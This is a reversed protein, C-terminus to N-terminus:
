GERASAIASDLLTAATPLSQRLENVRSNLRLITEQAGANVLRQYWGVFARSTATEESADRTPPIPQSEVASCLILAALAQPPRACNCAREWLPHADKTQQSLLLAEARFAIIAKEEPMAKIAEGTWDCAFELFEPNSLAIEAGLKWAAVHQSNEAVISNLAHLADVPRKQQVLLRAYDLKVNELNGTESIASEFEKEAGKLDGANMLSLALCHRPAVTLIDTNIPSLAPQNRKAICQRMQGAAESYNKLEFHALGLAFHLSATLGGNQALPSNLTRIVENHQRDRYLHVTYQTLLVERLEPVIEAPKQGSMLEFAEAYRALGEHLEGSRVLELGLNMVLNADNPREEVALKLLRLNREVKNRDKEIEKTYGHHLLQATGLETKMGWAKCYPLLSSFVQEHIRGYFHVGPANRFLRPVFSRGDNQGVNVLPLRYALADANSFDKKLNAHQDAPLEEDADLMLIWDGTAHELAANRAASFDDCWNFQHVEAGSAKAIEVTRDTSGTDLVVIQNALGKVSKLCQAIFKEENKTIICVSLRNCVASQPNRIADPLVLWEPKANGKLPKQLFQKPTKWGPALDRARQACIRASNADGAALAIEALLLFAEPHFPRKAIAATAETWAQEWAKRGFHERAKSLEGVKAVEPITVPVSVPAPKKPSLPKPAAVKPIFPKKGNLICDRYRDQATKIERAGVARNAHEVSTPSKLYLGLTEKVHLFKKTQALRLWFEYDGASVMEADFYGYEDHVERRWMPQPGCFCGKLLLAKADFDMWRYCGVPDATDYTENENLTVLCDGYVLSIEPNQDLTQALIELADSRHRDDTNANTLYRGRAAQVGRNWAGYVTEREETRIYVINSYRKQFEEVIARENQPSNSDVVIIELQDAITQAELNELCGRLFRESKFTSVIASVLPRNSRSGRQAAAKPKQLEAIAAPVTATNWTRIAAEEEVADLNAPLAAHLPQLIKQEVNEALSDDGLHVAVKLLRLGIRLRYAISYERPATVHAQSYCLWAQRWDKRIEAELGLLLALVSDMESIQSLQGAFGAAVRNFVLAARAEALGTSQSDYRDFGAYIRTLRRLNVALKQHLEDGRDSSLILRGITDIPDTGTKPLTEAISTFRSIAEAFVKGTATWSFRNVNTRGLEILRSRVEPNQVDILAKQMGAVDSDGVYIAADGTVEPISSNRCTIVPCGCKHAELIPMGFGEYRSPYALAVAGAYAASLEADSLRLMHCRVGRVYPKLSSELEAPGGACVIEFEHRNELLAFARFFLIANKYIGRNGVLLFYPKQIRHKEKFARVSESGAPQLEDGVANHALVVPRDAHQPYLSRFDNLTSQSVALYGCSKDIAKAKARWEPLSLDQGTVEPIMDHLVIVNPTNEAFTHYTSVLVAANEEDCHRQLRLSDDEFQRFNYSAIDRRRIGPIDPASRARDLLVIRSALPSLALQELMRHWVRSIGHPRGRQLEFIVGDILITKETSLEEKRVATVAPKPLSDVWQVAQELRRHLAHEQRVYEWGAQALKEARAPDSTLERVAALLEDRNSYYLLHKGHEFQRDIEETGTRNTVVACGCAMAEYIRTPHNSFVSPFNVAVQYRNFDNALDEPTVPREQYPVLDVAKNDILHQLLARRDSYSSSQGAFPQHKGRFFARQLRENFPQNRVFVSDDVGFPQFLAPKGIAEMLPRDSLDTYIIADVCAAARRFALEMVKSGSLKEHNLISEQAYLIKRAPCQQWREQWRRSGHLMQSHWDFGALLIIDSQPNALYAFLGDDSLVDQDGWNARPRFTRHHIGLQRAANEWGGGVAWAHSGTAQLVIDVRAKSTSGTIIAPAAVTKTEPLKPAPIPAVPTAPATQNFLAPASQQPPYARFTPRPGSIKQPKFLTGQGVPICDQLRLTRQMETYLQHFNQRSLDRVNIRLQESIIPSQLISFFEVLLGPTIQDKTFKRYINWLEVWRVMGGHSTKIDEHMRWASLLENLLVVDFDKGVRLWYDLDMAFRLSADFEGVRDWAKRNIFTSPQLLYCSGKLLSEYTYGIQRMYHKPNEKKGDVILGNGTYLGANPHAQYAQAVYDFANPLFFDDSNLYALLDGTARRLGKNIADTQGKDPESVWFTIHQDYKKLVEITNDKSGGDFVFLEFNPYGQDLVSTITDEIYKGQNFSPVVISIKPLSPLSM